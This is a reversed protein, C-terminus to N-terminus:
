RAAIPSGPWGSAHCWFCGMVLLQGRRRRRETVLAPLPPDANELTEVFLRALVGTTHLTLALIFGGGAWGSRSRLLSAFILEPM